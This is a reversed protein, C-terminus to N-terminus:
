NTTVVVIQLNSCIHSFQSIIMIDSTESGEINKEKNYLIMIIVIIYM